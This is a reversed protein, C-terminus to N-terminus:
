INNLLPMIQVYAGYQVLPPARSRRLKHGWAAGDARIVPILPAEGRRAEIARHKFFVDILLFNNCLGM